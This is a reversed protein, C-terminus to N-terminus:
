PTEISKQILGAMQRRSPFCTVLRMGLGGMHGPFSAFETGLRMGLGGVHAPFSALRTVKEMLSCETCAVHWGGSQMRHM